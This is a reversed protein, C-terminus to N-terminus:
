LLKTWFHLLQANFPDGSYQPAHGYGAIVAREAHLAEAM